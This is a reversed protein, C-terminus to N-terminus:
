LHTRDTSNRERVEWLVAIRRGHHHTPVLWNFWVDVGHVRGHAGNKKKSNSPETRDPHLLSVVFSPFLHRRRERLQMQTQANSCWCMTRPNLEQKSGFVFLSGVPLPSPRLLKMWLVPLLPSNRAWYVFVKLLAADGMELRHRDQGLKIIALSRTGRKAWSHNLTWLCLLALLLFPERLM